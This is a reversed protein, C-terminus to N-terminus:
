THQQHTPLNAPGGGWSRRKIDLRYTHTTCVSGNRPKDVENIKGPLQNRNLQNESDNRSKGTTLIQVEGEKKNGPDERPEQLRLTHASPTAQLRERETPVSVKTITKEGSEWFTM